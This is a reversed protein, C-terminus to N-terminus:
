YFRFTRCLWYWLLWQICDQALEMRREGKCVIERLDININDDWWKRLCGLKGLSKGMFIRYVVM